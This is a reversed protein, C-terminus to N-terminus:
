PNRQRRSCKAAREHQERDRDLAFTPVGLREVLGDAKPELEKAVVLVPDEDSGTADRADIVRLSRGQGLPITDGPRWTPVSTQFAPPDAPTGDEHELKYTFAM